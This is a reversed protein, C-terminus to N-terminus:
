QRRYEDKKCQPLRCWVRAGKMVLDNPKMGCNRRRYERLFNIYGNNTIPGPAQCKPRKCRKRKPCPKPGCPNPKPACKPKRRVPCRPKKACSPKRRKACCQKKRKKPCCPSKRPKRPCCSDDPGMGGDDIKASFNMNRFKDKQTDNMQNWVQ